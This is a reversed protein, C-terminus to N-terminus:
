ALRSKAERVSRQSSRVEKAEECVRGHSRTPSKFSVKYWWSVKLLKGGFRLRIDMNLSKMLLQLRMSRLYLLGLNMHVLLPSLPRTIFRKSLARAFRLPFEEKIVRVDAMERSGGRVVVGDEEM